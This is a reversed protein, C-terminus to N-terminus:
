KGVYLAEFDSGWQRGFVYVGAGEPIKNLNVSYILNQKSADKLQLPRSWKVHLQM